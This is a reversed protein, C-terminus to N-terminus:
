PLRTTLQKRWARAVLVAGVAVQRNLVPDGGRRKRMAAAHRLQNALCAHTIQAQNARRKALVQETEMRQAYRTSTAPNTTIVQIM